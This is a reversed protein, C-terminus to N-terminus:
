RRTPSMENLLQQYRADARLETLEPEAAVEKAPYGATLTRRLLSLAREREGALELIVTLRYLIQPQLKPQDVLGAVLKTAGDRDGKKILYLAHRSQLNVDNPSKALLPVILEIARRYAAEADPRRGPAWRYADGLNGWYAHNGASLEVAKEFVPVADSYRGQFFRITGLNNYTAPDPRIELARQMMSAAEDSRDLMYYVAGLNRLLGVNDPALTQAKEWHAAADRYSAKRFLFQAFEQHARWEEPGLKVATRYEPEAADDQNQAALNLALGLHPFANVPDLEAARKFAAEAPAHERSELRVFGMASHAAALEPDLDIARQANELALPMWKPDPNTQQKRIYASALHAHAIASKPNGAIARELLAIARDANEVRDLRKLLDAAARTM